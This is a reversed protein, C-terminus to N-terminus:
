ARFKSGEEDSLEEDDEEQADSKRHTMLSENARTGEHTTNVSAQSPDSAHMVVDDDSLGPYTEQKRKQSM